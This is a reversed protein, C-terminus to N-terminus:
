HEVASGGSSRVKLGNEYVGEIWGAIKRVKETREPQFWELTIYGHVGGRCENLRFKNEGLDGEM